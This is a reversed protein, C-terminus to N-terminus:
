RTTGQLIRRPQTGQGGQSSSSRNQSGPAPPKPPIVRSRPKRQQAQSGAQQTPNTRTRVQPPRQGTSPAPAKIALYKSEFGITAENGSADKITVKTASSGDDQRENGRDMVQKIEIGKDNPVGSKIFIRGETPNKRNLLTVMHGKEAPGIGMVIYDNLANYTIQTPRPPPTTFPSNTWLTRYKSPLPKRPVDAALVATMALLLSSIKLFSKM